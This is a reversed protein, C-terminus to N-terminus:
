FMIISDAFIRAAVVASMSKSVPRECVAFFSSSCYRSLPKEPRYEHCLFTYLENKLHAVLKLLKSVKRVSEEKLKSEM